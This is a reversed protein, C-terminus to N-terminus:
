FRQFDEPKLDKVGMFTIQGQDGPLQVMTGGAVSTQNELMSKIEARSADLGIKNGAAAGFDTITFHGGQNNLFQFLNAAGSGGSLTAGASSDHVNVTITDAATGGKITDNDGAFVQLSKQFSSADFLAHDGLQLMYPAGSQGHASSGNNLTGYLTNNGTLVQGPSGVGGLFTLTGNVSISGSANGAASITSPGGATGTTSAQTSTSSNNSDSASNDQSLNGNLSAMAAAFQDNLKQVQDSSFQVPFSNNFAGSLTVYAM